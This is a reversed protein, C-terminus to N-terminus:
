GVEDVHDSISQVRRMGVPVEVPAPIRLRNHSRIGSVIYRPQLTTVDRPLDSRPLSAQQQVGLRFQRTKMRGPRRLSARRLAFRVQFCDRHFVQLRIGGAAIDRDDDIPLRQVISIRLSPIQTQPLVRKLPM